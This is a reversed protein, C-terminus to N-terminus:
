VLEWGSSGGSGEKGGGRGGGGGGGGRFFIQLQASGLSSCPEVKTSVLVLFSTTVNNLNIYINNIKYDM